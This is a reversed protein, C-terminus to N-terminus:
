KSEIEWEWWTREETRSNQTHRKERVFARTCRANKEGHLLSSLLRMLTWLKRYSVNRKSGSSTSAFPDLLVTLRGPFRFGRAFSKRECHYRISLCPVFAPSRSFPTVSAARHWRSVWRRRRASCLDWRTNNSNISTGPSRVTCSNRYWASAASCLGLSTWNRRWCNSERKSCTTIKSWYSWRRRRRGRDYRRRRAVKGWRLITGKVGDETSTAPKTLPRPRNGPLLRPPTPM